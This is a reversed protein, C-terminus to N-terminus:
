EHLAKATSPTLSLIDSVSRVSAFISLYTSAPFHLDKSDIAPAELQQDNFPDAEIIAMDVLLGVNFAEFNVSETNISAGLDIVLAGSIGAQLATDHIVHAHSIGALGVFAFAISLFSANM